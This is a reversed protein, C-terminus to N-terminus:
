LKRTVIGGACDGGYASVYRRLLPAPRYRDEGWEAYLGEMVGLVTDLGIHTGWEFPGYPYNTGLKMALDIDRPSAINEHLASFVENIIACVIRARVLGAGDGVVVVTQGLAKWFNQADAWVVEATLLGRALEITGSEPIPPLVGFGVVRAPNRVWSAATTTSAALACSLILADNQTRTLVARKNDLSANEVEIFIDYADMERALFEDTAYATTRHGVRECMAALPKVFQPTGVILINM